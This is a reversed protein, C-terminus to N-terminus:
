RIGNTVEMEKIRNDIHELQEEYSQCQVNARIAIWRFEKLEEKILDRLKFIDVGDNANLRIKEDIDEPALKALALM